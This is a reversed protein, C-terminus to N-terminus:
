NNSIPSEVFTVSSGEVVGIGRREIETYLAELRLRDETTYCEINEVQDQLVKAEAMLVEINTEKINETM